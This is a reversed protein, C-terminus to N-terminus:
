LASGDAHKDEQSDEEDRDESYDEESNILIVIDDFTDYSIDSSAYSTQSNGDVEVNKEKPMNNRNPKKSDNSFYKVEVTNLRIDLADKLLRSLDTPSLNDLPVELLEELIWALGTSSLQGGIDRIAKDYETMNISRFTRWVEDSCELLRKCDPLSSKHFNDCVYDYIRRPLAIGANLKPIFAWVLTTNFTPSNEEIIRCVPLIHAILLLGAFEGDRLTTLPSSHETSALYSSISTPIYTDNRWFLENSAPAEATNPPEVPDYFDAVSVIPLTNNVVNRMLRSADESIDDAALLEDITFLQGVAEKAARNALNRNSRGKAEILLRAPEDYSHPQLSYGLLDPRRAKSYPKHKTILEYVIDFHATVTTQFISDAMMACQTMGLTYIISKRETDDLVDLFRNKLFYTSTQNKNHPQALNLGLDVQAERLTVYSDLQATGQSSLLDRPNGFMKAFLRVDSNSSDIEGHSTSVTRFPRSTFSTKLRKLLAFATELPTILTRNPKHSRRKGSGTEIAPTAHDTTNTQSSNSDHTIISITYPIKPM